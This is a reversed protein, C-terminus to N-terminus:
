ATTGESSSDLPEPEVYKNGDYFSKSPRLAMIIYVVMIALFLAFIPLVLFILSMLEESTLMGGPIANNLVAVAGIGAFIGYGIPVAQLFIWKASFGADHLRRALISLNPVLLAFSLFNSLPTPQAAVNQIEQMWDATQEPAPWIISEITGIVLGLLVTFLIWYWFERRSAKGRFNFYNRFGSQIAGIFSM